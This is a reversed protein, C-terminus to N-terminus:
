ASRCPSSRLRSPVVQADIPLAAGTQGLRALLFNRTWDSYVVGLLSLGIVLVIGITALWKMARSLWVFRDAALTVPSM